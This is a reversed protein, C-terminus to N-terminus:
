ASRPNHEYMRASDDPCRAYKKKLATEFYAPLVTDHNSSSLAELVAGAMDPDECTIPMSFANHTNRASSVYEKQNEDAKPYPLIGYADKMDRLQSVSDDIEATM